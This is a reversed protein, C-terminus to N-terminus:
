DPKGFHSFRGESRPFSLRPKAPGLNRGALFERTLDTVFLRSLAIAMVNPATM